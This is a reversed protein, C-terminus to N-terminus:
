ELDSNIIKNIKMLLNEKVQDEKISLGDIEIFYFLKDKSLNISFYDESEVILLEDVDYESAKVDKISSGYLNKIIKTNSNFLQIARKSDPQLNVSSTLKFENDQEDKLIVFYMCSFGNNETNNKTYSYDKRNKLTKIIFNDINLDKIDDFTFVFGKDQDTFEAQRVCASLMIIIFLFIICVIFIKKM